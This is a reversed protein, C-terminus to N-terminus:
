LNIMLEQKHFVRKPESALHGPVDYELRRLHLPRDNPTVEHSTSDITLGRYSRDRGSGRAAQIFHCM